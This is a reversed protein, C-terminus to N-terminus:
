KTLWPTPSIFPMDSQREPMSRKKRFNASASSSM